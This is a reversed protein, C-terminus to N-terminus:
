YRVGRLLMLSGQLPRRPCAYCCIRSGGYRVARLLMRWGGSPRRTPRAIPPRVQKGAAVIPVYRQVGSEDVDRGLVWAYADNVTSRFHEYLVEQFVVRGREVAESIKRNMQRSTLEQAGCGRRLVPSDRELVM